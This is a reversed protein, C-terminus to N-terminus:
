VLPIAYAMDGLGDSGLPALYIDELAGEPHPFVYYAENGGIGWLGEGFELEGAIPQGASDVLTLNYVWSGLMDADTWPYTFGEGLVLAEGHEAIFASRREPSATFTLTVYLKMLTDDAQLVSLTTGDELTASRSATWRNVPADTNLTFSVLGNEPERRTGDELRLAQWDEYTLHPNEGIPMAIRVQGSLQLDEQDLRYLTNVLVEGPQTGPAYNETSMNPMDVEQGNIWLNDTWWGIPWDEFCWLTEDTLMETSDTDRLSYQVYLSVGDYIAERVTVCYQGVTVQAVNQALYLSLDDDLEFSRGWFSQLLPSQLAAAVALSTLMALLLALVLMMRRFRSGSRRPTHRTHRRPEGTPQIAEVPPLSDPAAASSPSPCATEMRSFATLVAQHFGDPVDGTDQNLLEKIREETM